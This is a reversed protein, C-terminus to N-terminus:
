VLPSIPGEPHEPSLIDFAFSTLNGLTLVVKISMSSELCWLHYLGRRYSFPM